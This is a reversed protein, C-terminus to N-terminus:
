RGNVRANDLLLEFDVTAHSARLGLVYRPLTSKPPTIDMPSRGGADFPFRHAVMPRLRAFTPLGPSPEAGGRPPTLQPDDDRPQKRTLRCQTWSAAARASFSFSGAGKRSWGGREQGGTHSAICGDAIVGDSTGWLLKASTSQSPSPQGRRPSAGHQCWSLVSPNAHGRCTIITAM